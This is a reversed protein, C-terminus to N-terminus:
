SLRDFGDASMTSEFVYQYCCTVAEETYKYMRFKIKEVGITDIFIRRVGCM